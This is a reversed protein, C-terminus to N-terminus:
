QCLYNKCFYVLSNKDYFIKYWINIDNLVSLWFEDVNYWIIIFDGFSFLSNVRSLLLSYLLGDIKKVKYLLLLITNLHIWNNYYLQNIINTYKEFVYESYKKKNNFDINVTRVLDICKFSDPTIWNTLLVLKKKM